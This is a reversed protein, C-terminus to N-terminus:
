SFVEQPQMQPVAHAASRQVRLVLIDDTQGFKQAATAIEATTTSDRLMQEIRGFGFLEGEANQAEAVGDSMMLLSDGPELKFSSVPFDIGSIIGLPLAGEIQM